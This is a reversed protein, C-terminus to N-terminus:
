TKQERRIQIRSGLKTPRPLTKHGAFLHVLNSLPYRGFPHVRAKGDSRMVHLLLSEYVACLVGSQNEMEIMLHVAKNTLDIIQLRLSITDHPRVENLFSTHTEVTFVSCKTENRYEDNIEILELFKVEGRSFLLHYAFDSLHNNSDIWESELPCTLLFELQSSATM